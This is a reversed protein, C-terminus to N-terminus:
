TLSLCRETGESYPHHDELSSQDIDGERSFKQQLSVAIDEYIIGHTYHRQEALM